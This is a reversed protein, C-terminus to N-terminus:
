KKDLWGLVAYITLFLFIVFIFLVFGLAFYVISVLYVINESLLISIERYANLLMFIVSDLNFTFNDIKPVSEALSSLNNDIGLESCNSIFIIGGLLIGIGVALIPDQLLQQYWPLITSDLTEAHPSPLFFHKRLLIEQQLDLNEKIQFKLQNELNMIKVDLSYVIFFSCITYFLCQSFLSM